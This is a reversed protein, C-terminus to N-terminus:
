CTEPMRMGMMLLKDVATATEPKGNSRPPLLTTPRPRDSRVTHAQGRGGFVLGVVKWTLFVLPQWHLKLSRIIAPTDGSVHQAEYLHPTIFNQYM